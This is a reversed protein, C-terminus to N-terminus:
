TYNSNLCLWFLSIEVQTLSMHFHENELFPTPVWHELERDEVWYGLGDSKFSKM